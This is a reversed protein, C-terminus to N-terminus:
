QLRKAPNGAWVENEPVDKVVNAGIGITSAEGISRWDRVSSNPGIWANDGVRCSGSVETCATVMANKGIHVNHAIHCLNDIKAYDEIVTDSLSGRDVCTNAGIDVYDGIIVGGIQPFRFHNGEEDTEYGFGPGGIVIGEKFYCNEGIVVNDYIRAHGAIVTGRGIRARGIISYPGITVDNAIDAESNVVSTEHIGSQYNDVFFTNGVIALAKKPNKVVILTKDLEKLVDTYSVSEDVIIVKALSTETIYQKDEKSSSVWDLTTSNVHNVDAINDIWGHTNGYISVIEKGICDIIEEISIRKSEM